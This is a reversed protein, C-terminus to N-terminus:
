PLFKLLERFSSFSHYKESSVTETNLAHWSNPNLYHYAEWQLSIAPVIESRISNGVVRIDSSSFPLRKVLSEFSERNKKRSLGIAHFFRGLNSRAIKGCQIDHPGETFM